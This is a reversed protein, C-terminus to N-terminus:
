DNWASAPLWNNLIEEAEKLNGGKELLRMAKDGAASKAYHSALSYNEAKIYLAARPYKVALEKSNVTVPKPPCAGDNGEDDMMRNFQERYRVEDAIAARLEKLGPLNAEKEAQRIAKVADSAQSIISAEKTTLLVNGVRHTWEAGYNHKPAKLVSAETAIEKGDLLAIIWGDERISVEITQGKRTQRTVVIEM